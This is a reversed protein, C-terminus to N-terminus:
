APLQRNVPLGADDHRGLLDRRHDFAFDILASRACRQKSCTGFDYVMQGNDLAHAELLLEIQHVLPRAALALAAKALGPGIDAAVEAVSLPQAYHRQSGDPLTISPM